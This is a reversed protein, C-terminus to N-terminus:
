EDNFLGEAAKLVQRVREPPKNKSVFYRETWQLPTLAEPTSGVGAIRTEREVETSIAAISEARELAREIERRRLAAEQGERLRILVRVVAGEIDREGIKAIVAATPDDEERADVKITRFPRAHVRVFEWTTQGRALNLWCFGKDEVEEGFDIRELSGSYVVAPIAGM